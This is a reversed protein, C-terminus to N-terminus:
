SLLLFIISKTKVHCSVFVYLMYMLFPFIEIPRDRDRDNSLPEKEASYIVSTIALVFRWLLYTDILVYRAINKNSTLLTIYDHCLLLKLIILQM